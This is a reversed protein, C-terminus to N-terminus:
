RARWACRWARARAGRPRSRGRPPLGPAPPGRGPAARGRGAPLGGPRGPFACAPFFHIAGERPGEPMGDGLGRPCPPPHWTLPGGHRPAPAPRPGAPPRGGGRRARPPAGPGRPPARPRAPAPRARVVPRRRPRPRLRPAPAPAGQAPRRHPRRGPALPRPADPPRQSAAPENDPQRPGGPEGARRCAREHPPAAHEEQQSRPTPRKSPRLHGEPSQLLRHLPAAGRLRLPSPRGPRPEQAQLTAEARQHLQRDLRHSPEQRPPQLGKEAPRPEEAPVPEFLRHHLQPIRPSEHEVAAPSDQRM